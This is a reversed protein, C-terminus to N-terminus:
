GGVYKFFFVICCVLFLFLNKVILLLDISSTIKFMWKSHINKKTGYQSAVYRVLANHWSDLVKKNCIFSLLFILLPFAATQM